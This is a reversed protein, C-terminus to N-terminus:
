GSERQKEAAEFANLTPGSYQRFSEIVDAPSKDASIFHFTDKVMSIEERLGAVQGFREVIHSKVGWTMPSLFGEPPPPTFLSSVKRLQSVFSTSDNLIGNGM